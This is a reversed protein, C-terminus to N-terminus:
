YWVPTPASELPSIAKGNQSICSYGTVHPQISYDPPFYFCTVHSFPTPLSLSPIQRQTRSGSLPVTFPSASHYKLNLRSSISTHYRQAQKQVPHSFVKVFLIPKGCHKSCKICLCHQKCSLEILNFIYYM